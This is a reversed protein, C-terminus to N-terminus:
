RIGIDSEPHGGIMLAHFAIHRVRPQQSRMGIRVIRRRCLFHKPFDKRAFDFQVLAHQHFVHNGLYLENEFKGVTSFRERYYTIAQEAEEPSMHFYEMFSDRLPPGIFSELEDIDPAEMGMKTVAYQVSTCIGVKPDSLTGDLDFLVYRYM